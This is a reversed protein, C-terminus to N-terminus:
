MAWLSGNKDRHVRTLIANESEGRSLGRRRDLVRGFCSGCLWLDQGGIPGYIGSLSTAKCDDCAFTKKGRRVRRLPRGSYESFDAKGSIVPMPKTREESPLVAAPAPVTERGARARVPLKATKPISLTRGVSSTNLFAGGRLWLQATVALVTNSHQQTATNPHQYTLLTLTNIPQLTSLNFPQPTATNPTSM